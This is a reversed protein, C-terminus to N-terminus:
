LRYPVSELWCTQECSRHCCVTYRLVVPHGWFYAVALRYFITNFGTLSM